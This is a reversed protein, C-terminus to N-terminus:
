RSRYGFDTTGTVSPGGYGRPTGYVLGVGIQEYQRDLINHRHEPSHMWGDVLGEPTAYAGTAWGINEGVTWNGARTLYGTRRIRKVFNPGGNRKHAFYRHKVMDRSQWRAAADLKPSRRLPSLGRKAREANLLGLISTEARRLQAQRPTARSGSASASAALVPAVTAAVLALAISTNRM